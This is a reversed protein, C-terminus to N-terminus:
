WDNREADEKAVMVRECFSVVSDWAEGSRVMAAVVAEPSLDPGIRQVLIRRESQWAPCHELTHQASDQAHGCHHCQATAERGIRHLYEGFCGHGTLMQTLRYTVCKRRKLWARFNPLVACVVRQRAGRPEQLRERWRRLARWSARTRLMKVTEPDARRRLGRIKFFIEATM